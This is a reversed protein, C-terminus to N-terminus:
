TAARAAESQQSTNSIVRANIWDVLDRRRYFVRRSLKVYRPGANTMRLKALWSPQLSLFKAAEEPPLLAEDDHIQAPSQDGALLAKQSTKM